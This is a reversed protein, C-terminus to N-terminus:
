LELLLSSPSRSAPPHQAFAWERPGKRLHSGSRGSWSSQACCMVPLQSLAQEQIECTRAAAAFGAGGSRLAYTSGAYHAANWNNPAGCAVVRSCMAFAGCGASTSAASLTPGPPTSGGVEREASSRRCRLVADVGCFWQRVARDAPINAEIGGCKAPILPCCFPCGSSARSATCSMWRTSECRDCRTRPIQARCPM